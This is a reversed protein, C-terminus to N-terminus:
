PALGHRGLAAVHTVECAAISALLQALSPAATRLQRVHVAAAAREASGLAALAAGSDSPVQPPSAPVRHLSHARGDATGSPEILRRQLEALHAASDSLLPDLRTSLTPHAARM